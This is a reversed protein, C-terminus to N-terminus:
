FNYKFYMKEKYILFFDNLLFYVAFDHGTFHLYLCNLKQQVHCETVDLWGVLAM